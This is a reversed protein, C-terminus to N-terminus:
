QDGRYAVYRLLKAEEAITLGITFGKSASGSSGAYRTIAANGTGSAVAAAIAATHTAAATVTGDDVGSTADSSVYVNESGFTGDRKDIVLFGAADGGAWSGSSLLVEVVKATAGSTAGTITAGAEIETTGGGSLTLTEYPGIYGKTLLDGDTGNFVEVMDPIWGLQINQAAGNGVLYGSKIQGMM